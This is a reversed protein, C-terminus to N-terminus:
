VRRTGVVREKVANTEHPTLTTPNTLSERHDQSKAAIRSRPPQRQRNNGRPAGAFMAAYTRNPRQKERLEAVERKLAVNEERLKPIITPTDQIRRIERTLDIVEQLLSWHSCTLCYFLANSSTLMTFLERPM